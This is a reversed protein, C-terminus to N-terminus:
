GLHCLVFFKNRIKEGHARLLRLLGPLHVFDDFTQM